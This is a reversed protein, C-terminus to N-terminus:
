KCVMKNQTTTRNFTRYLICCCFESLSVTISDYTKHKLATQLFFQRSLDKDIFTILVAIEFGECYPCCSSLKTNVTLYEINHLISM